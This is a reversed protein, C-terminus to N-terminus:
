SCTHCLQSMDLHRTQNSIPNNIVCSYTNKDQYEVELHLSVRSNLHSVSISSLISSGKYWSLTVDSVNVVSCLLSCSLSSSSSCQSPDRTIGPILLRSYVTVNFKKVRDGPGGKINLEYHGSDTTRLSKISLSGTQNELQLRHRYRGDTGNFLSIENADLLAILVGQDGFKWLIKNRRTVTVETNLTVSEGEMVSVSKIEDTEAGFVGSSSQHLEPVSVDEIQNVTLISSVFNSSTSRESSTTSQPTEYVTVNFSM